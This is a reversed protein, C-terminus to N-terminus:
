FLNFIYITITRIPCIGTRSLDLAVEFHETAKNTQGAVLYYHGLM